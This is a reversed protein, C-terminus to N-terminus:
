IEKIKQHIRINQLTREPLRPTHQQILNQGVTSVLINSKTDNTKNYAVNRHCVATQAKLGLNLRIQREKEIKGLDLPLELIWIFLSPANRPILEPVIM